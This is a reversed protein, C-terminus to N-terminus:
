ECAVFADRCAVAGDERIMDISLNGDARSIGRQLHNWEGVCAFFQGGDRRFVFVALEREFGGRVGDVIDDFLNEQM